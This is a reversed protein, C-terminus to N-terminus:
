GETNKKLAETLNIDKSKLAEAINASTAGDGGSPKYDTKTQGEFLFAKDTQLQKIQDDLGDVKGDDGLKVKDMDVLRKVVDADRANIGALQADVASNLKLQQIEAERRTEAEKYKTKIEDLQKTLEENDANNKKLSNIDKEREKLQDRLSNAETEVETLKEKQKNLEKGREAMVGQIQEENLGLKQLTEKDFAM